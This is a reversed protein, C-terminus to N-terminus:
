PQIRDIYRPQGAFRKDAVLEGEGNFARITWNEETYDELVLLAYRGAVEKWKYHESNAKVDDLTMTYPENYALDKLHNGASLYRIQSDGSLQIGVLFWIEDGGSGYGAVEFPQGDQAAIRSAEGGHRYLLGWLTHLRGVGFTGHFSDEYLVAKGYPMDESLIVRYDQHFGASIAASMTFRYGAFWGYAVVLVAIIGISWYWKKKM